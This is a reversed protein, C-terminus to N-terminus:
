VTQLHALLARTLSLSYMDVSDDLVESAVYVEYQKYILLYLEPSVSVICIWLSLSYTDVSEDLVGSIKFELVVPLM